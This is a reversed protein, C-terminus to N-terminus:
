DFMTMITRINQSSTNEATSNCNNRYPIFWHYCVNVNDESNNLISVHNSWEFMRCNHIQIISDSCFFCIKFYGWLGHRIDNSRFIFFRHEKKKRKYNRWIFGQSLIARNSTFFIQENLHCFYSVNLLASITSTSWDVM